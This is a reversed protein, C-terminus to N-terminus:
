VRERCSARGIEFVARGRETAADLIESAHTCCEGNMRSHQTLAAFKMEGFMDLCNNSSAGDTGILVKVGADLLRKLRFEEGVALKANSVPIHAVVVGREALIEVDRDSLWVCHAAVVNDGLMGLRDLYEVPSLGHQKMCEEVERHTESIHTHIRIGIARSYEGCWALSDASVTYIAHPGLALSVRPDRGVCSEVFEQAAERQRRAADPNHMDILVGCIEARLGSDLVARVVAEPHWYMDNFFATGSMIMELCGLMTGAYVDDATMRSEAPWIRRSLWEHLPLGDGWGRFLTMAAHTHANFFPASVIAGGCDITQEPAFDVPRPVAVRGERVAIELTTGDPHTANTFLIDHKM